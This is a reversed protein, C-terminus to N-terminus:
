FRGSAGGGGFDGGGYSYDSDSSSSSSSSSLDLGSYDTGIGSTYCGGESGRSRDKRIKRDLLCIIVIFTLLVGGGILANRTDEKQLEEYSYEGRCTPEIIELAAVLAEYYHGDALESVMKEDIIYKCFADPLIGELGYGTLIAVEGDPEKATKSKIIIILGNDLDKQGVGWEHGIQTGLAKIEEGYLTPTIIVVIQNTTSDCFSRLRHELTDRQADSLIASYDNVARGTKPFHSM